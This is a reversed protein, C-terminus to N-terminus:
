FRTQPRFFPRITARDHIRSAGQKSQFQALIPPGQGFSDFGQALGSSNRAEPKTQGKAQVGARGWSM